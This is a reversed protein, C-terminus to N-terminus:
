ATEELDIRDADQEWGERIESCRACYKRYIDEPAYRHGQQACVQNAMLPATSAWPRPQRAIATDTSRSSTDASASRAWRTRENVISRAVYAAPNGLDRPSSACIEAAATHLWVGAPDIGAEQLRRVLEAANINLATLGALEHADLRVASESDDDYREAEGPSSSQHEQLNTNKIKKNKKHTHQNDTAPDDSTPDDTAQNRASPAILAKGSIVPNDVPITPAPPEGEDSNDVDEATGASAASRKRMRREYRESPGPDVIRFDSGAILGGISRGTAGDIAGAPHRRIEVELYGAAELQERASAFATRGLGLEGRVFDLTLPYSPDHSRVYLLIALANGGIREDRVWWNPVQTFHRDLELPSNIFRQQGSM